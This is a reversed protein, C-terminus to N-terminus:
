LLDNGSERYEREQEDIERLTDGYSYKKIVTIVEKEVSPKTPLTKFEWWEAGDYEGRELWWNDGVIVLDDAVEAGGYGNNYENDALKWFLDKPITIDKGGIWRIDETTKGNDKLIELTEKKLNMEKKEKDTGRASGRSQRSASNQVGDKIVRGRVPM